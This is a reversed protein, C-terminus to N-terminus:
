PKFNEFPELVAEEKKEVKKEEEKEAEEEEEEPTDIPHKYDITVRNVPSLDPNERIFTNWLGSEKLDKIYRKHPPSNPNLKGYQERIFQTLFWRGNGLDRLREESSNVKRQLEEPNINLGHMREAYLLEGEMEFQGITDCKLQLFIWFLREDKSLKLFHGADLLASDTFRKRQKIM